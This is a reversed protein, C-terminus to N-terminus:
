SLVYDAEAAIPTWGLGHAAVVAARAHAVAEKSRGLDRLARSLALRARVAAVAELTARRAPLRTPARLLAVNACGDVGALGAVAKPSNEIAADDASALLETLAQAESRRQDLCQM